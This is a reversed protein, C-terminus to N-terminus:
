AELTLARAPVFSLENPFEIKLLHRALCRTLPLWKNLRELNFAQDVSITLEGNETFLTHAIENRLPRLYQEVISGIRKGMAESVFISGLALPDWTPPLPFIENLWNVQEIQNAPITLVPRLFHEGRNRAESALRKHRVRVSEIIKFLCLFQYAPSNSNLAERYLSTYNRWENNIAIPEPALWMPAGYCPNMFSVRYNGTRLETIDIQYVNIPIDLYASFYSLMPALLYYATEEAEKLSDTTLSELEIKGLYGEDNACGVFEVKGINPIDFGLKILNADPHLPDIIAPKTVALHSDGKLHSAPSVEYESHLPFGPRSLTFVIKYEGPEGGYKIPKGADRCDSAAQYVDIYLQQGPLGAKSVIESQNDRAM